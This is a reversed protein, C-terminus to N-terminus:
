NLLIKVLAGQLKIIDLKLGRKPGAISFNLKLKAEFLRNGEIDTGTIAAGADRRAFSPM